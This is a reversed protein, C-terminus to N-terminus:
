PVTPTAQPATNPQKQAPCLLLFMVLLLNALPVLLLLAVWRNTGTSALRPIIAFRVFCVVLFLFAVFWLGFLLTLVPLNEKGRGTSFYLAWRFSVQLAMSAIVGLIFWGLFAARGIPKPFTSM